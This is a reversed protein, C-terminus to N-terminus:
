SEHIITHGSLNSGSTRSSQLSLAHPHSSKLVRHAHRTARANICDSTFPDTDGFTM